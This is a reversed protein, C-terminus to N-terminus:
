SGGGNLQPRATALKRGLSLDAREGAEHGAQAGHRDGKRMNKNNTLGLDLDELARQLDAREDKVLATGTEGIDAAEERMLEDLRNKIKTSAATFFSRRWVGLNKTDHPAIENRTVKARVKKGYHVSDIGCLARIDKLAGDVGSLIKIREFRARGFEALDDDHPYPEGPHDLKFAQMAYRRAFRHQQTMRSVMVTFEREVQPAVFEFMARTMQIHDLRGVMMWHYAGHDNTSGRYVKCFYVSAIRFLLEGRWYDDDGLTYLGSAHEFMRGSKDEPDLDGVDSMTLGHKLLLKNALRIAVDREHESPNDGEDAKRLIARIKDM